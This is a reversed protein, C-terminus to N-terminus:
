DPHIDRPTCGSQLVVAIWNVSPELGMGALWDQQGRYAPLEQAGPCYWHGSVAQRHHILEHLLVSVDYPDTHSWPSVLWITKSDPDYLGRLTGTRATHKTAALATASIRDIFKIQAAVSRRPLELNADIWLDLHVTLEKLSKVQRWALVDTAQATTACSAWLCLLLSGVLWCGTRNSLFM